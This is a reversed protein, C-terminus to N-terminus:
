AKEPYDEKLSDLTYASLDANEWDLQRNIACELDVMSDWYARQAKQAAELFQQDTGITLGVIGHTHLELTNDVDLPNIRECLADIQDVKLIPHHADFHDCGQHTDHCRGATHYELEQVMRLGHLVTAIESATFSYIAQKM